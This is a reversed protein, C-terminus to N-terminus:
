EASMSTAIPCTVSGSPEAESLPLLLLLLVSALSPFPEKEPTSLVTSVKPLTSDGAPPAAMAASSTTSRPTASSRMAVPSTVSASRRSTTFSMLTSSKYSGVMIRADAYRM